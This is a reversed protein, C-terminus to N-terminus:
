RSSKKSGKCRINGNGLGTLKCNAPLNVTIFDVEVIVINVVVIVIVNGDFDSLGEIRVVDGVQLELLIPDDPELVIDIDFITVININIEDIPGEIVILPEPACDLTVDANPASNGPHGPRQDVELRLVDGLEGEQPIIMDSGGLLQLTGAETSAGNVFLRYETPGDMDGEGPDGTNTITFNAFYAGDENICESTVEVSSCDWEETGGQCKNEDTPTPTEDPTDEPTPTELVQWIQIHSVDQASPNVTYCVESGDYNVIYGGTIGSGGDADLEISFEGSGSKIVIRIDGSASVCGSRTGPSDYKTCDTSQDCEAGGSPSDVAPTTTPDEQAFATNSDTGVLALGIISISLILLAITPILYPYNQHWHRISRIM